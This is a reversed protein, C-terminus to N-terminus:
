LINSYINNMQKMLKDIRLEELHFVFEELYKSKLFKNKQLEVIEVALQEPSTCDVQSVSRGGAEVTACAKHVIVVTGCALSELVPLGYGEYLSPYIALNAAKYFCRLQPLTVNSLIKIWSSLGRSEIRQLLEDKLPGSGILYTTIRDCLPILSYADIISKHNKRENFTGVSLIFDMPPNYTQRWDSWEATSPESYYFPLCNQYVVELKAEDAGYHEILDNKTMQSMCIIRDARRIAYQTKLHYIMRDAWKYGEPRLKFIIDHVTVVTAVKSAKPFYPMENTLGHFISSGPIKHYLGFVRNLGLFNTYEITKKEDATDFDIPKNLRPTCLFLKDEPYFQHYSNVLWRSYNGLGTPNYFYRKADFYIHMTTQNFDLTVPITNIPLFGSLNM